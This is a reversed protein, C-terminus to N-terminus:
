RSCRRYKSGVQDQDNLYRMLSGDAAPELVATASDHAVATACALSLILRRGDPKASKIRCSASPTTLRNGSVIFAPAFVNVPRTFSARKAASSFIAECEFGADLWAGQIAALSGAGATCMCVGVGLSRLSRGLSM